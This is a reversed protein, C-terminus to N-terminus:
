ASFFFDGSRFGLFEFRNLFEISAHSYDNRFAKFEQPALNLFQM